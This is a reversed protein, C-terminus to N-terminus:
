AGRANALTNAWLAVLAAQAPLKKFKIWCSYGVNQSM